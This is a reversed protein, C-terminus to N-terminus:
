EVNDGESGRRNSRVVGNSEEEPFHLGVFILYFFAGIIAGLHSAVVPVWFWLYDRISTFFVSISNFAM